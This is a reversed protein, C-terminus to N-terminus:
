QEDQMIAAIKCITGKLDNNQGAFQTIRKQMERVQRIALIDLQNIQDHISGPVKSYLNMWERKMGTLELTGSYTSLVLCGCIAAELAAKDVSNETGTYFYKYKRMVEPVEGYEMSDLYRVEISHSLALNDLKRIYNIDPRPGVLTLKPKRTTKGLEVIINEIRKVKAIRGVFLVSNDREEDNNGSNPNFRDLSIGHGVFRAKKTKFPLSNSESSFIWDVLFRSIKLSLPRAAHSYWLGQSVGFMKLIIGPFVATRPSMHHFAFYEERHHVIRIGIKMLKFLAFIKAKPTGGGLETIRIGELGSTNGVHTSVLDTVQFHSRFSNIWDISAGLLKSNSDTELNFIILQRM